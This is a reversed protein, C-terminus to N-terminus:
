VPSGSSGGHDVESLLEPHPSPSRGAIFMQIRSLAANYTQEEVASLEARVPRVNKKNWDDGTPDPVVLDDDIRHLDQTIAYQKYEFIRSVFWQAVGLQERDLGTEPGFEDFGEVPSLTLMEDIQSGALDVRFTWDGNAVTFGESDMAVLQGTPDGTDNIKQYLDPFREQMTSLLKDSLRVRDGPKFSM